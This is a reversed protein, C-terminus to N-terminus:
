ETFGADKLYLWHIFKKLIAKDPESMSVFEIGVDYLKGTSKSSHCSTIRGTISIRVNEPLLVEMLLRSERKHSISGEMLAGGLNISIVKYDEASASTESEAKARVRIDMTEVDFRRHRRTNKFFKNLPEYKEM